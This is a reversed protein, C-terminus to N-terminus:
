FFPSSPPGGRLDHRGQGRRAVRGFWFPVRRDGRDTGAGAVLWKWSEVEVRLSAVEVLGGGVVLSQSWVDVVM